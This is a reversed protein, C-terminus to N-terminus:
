TVGEIRLSPVLKASLRRNSPRYLESASEPWPTIKILLLFLLLNDYGLYKTVRLPIRMKDGGGGGPVSFGYTSRKQGCDRTINPVSHNSETNDMFLTSMPYGLQLVWNKHPELLLEGYSVDEYMGPLQTNINYVGHFGV